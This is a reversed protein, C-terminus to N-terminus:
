PGSMPQYSSEQRVLLFPVIRHTTLPQKGPALSARMRAATAEPVDAPTPTELRAKNLKGPRNDYQLKHMVAPNLQVAADSDARSPPKATTKKKLKPVPTGSRVRERAAAMTAARKEALGRKYELARLLDRKVALVPPQRRPKPTEVTPTKEVEAADSTTPQKCPELTEASPDDEEEATETGSLSEISM